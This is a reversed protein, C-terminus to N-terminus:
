FQNANKVTSSGGETDTFTHSTNNIISPHPNSGWTNANDGAKTYLGTEKLGYDLHINVYAGAPVNPITVNVTNGFVEGAYSSLTIQQTSLASAAGPLYCRSAEDWTFNGVTYVHIPTAGATIFPYPITMTVPGASDTVVNYYFQGPNTSNAFYKSGDKRFNLNFQYGAVASVDFQCLESSTVMGVPIDNNTIVCTKTEGIAITGSCNSGLTGQYGLPATETVSYAGADLTVTTGVSSGPFSSL